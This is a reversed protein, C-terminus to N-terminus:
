RKKKPQKLIKIFYKVNFLSSTHQIKKTVKAFIKEEFFFFGFVFL